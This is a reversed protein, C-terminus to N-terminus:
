GAPSSKHKADSALAWADSGRECPVIHTVWPSLEQDLLVRCAAM